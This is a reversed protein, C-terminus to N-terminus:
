VQLTSVFLAMGDVPIAKGILQTTLMPTMVIAALTSCLVLPSMILDIFVTGL